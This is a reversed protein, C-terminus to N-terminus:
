DDDYQKIVNITDPTISGGTFADVRKVPIYFATYLGTDPRCNYYEFANLVTDFSQDSCNVNNKNIDMDLMFVNNFPRIKVPCFRITLGNNYAARAKRKTIREYYKGNEMFGLHLM